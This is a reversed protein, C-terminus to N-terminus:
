GSLWRELRQLAELHCALFFLAFDALIVGAKKPIVLSIQVTSKFSHTLYSFFSLITVCVQLKWKLTQPWLVLLKFGAKLSLRLFM